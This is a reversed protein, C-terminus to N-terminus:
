SVRGSLQSLATTVSKSGAHVVGTSFALSLAPVAGCVPSQSFAGGIVATPRRRESSATRTAAPSLSQDVIYWGCVQMQPVWTSALPNCPRDQLFLPGRFMGWECSFSRIHLAMLFAWIRAVLSGTPKDRVSPFLGSPAVSMGQVHPLGSAHSTM